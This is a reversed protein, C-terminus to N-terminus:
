NHQSKKMAAPNKLKFNELRLAEILDEQNEIFNALEMRRTRGAYLNKNITNISKHVLDIYADKRKHLEWLYNMCFTCRM